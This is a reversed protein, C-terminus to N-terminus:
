QQQSVIHRHYSLKYYYFYYQHKM